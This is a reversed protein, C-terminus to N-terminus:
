KKGKKKQKNKFEAEKKTAENIFKTLENALTKATELDFNVMNHGNTYSFEAWFCEKGADFVQSSYTEIEWGVCELNNKGIFKRNKM